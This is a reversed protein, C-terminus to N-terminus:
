SCPNELDIILVFALARPNQIGSGLEDHVLLSFQLPIQPLIGPSQIVDDIPFSRRANVSAGAKVRPERFPLNGNGDPLRVDTQLDKYKVPSIILESCSRLIRYMQTNAATIRNLVAPLASSFCFLFLTQEAGWGSLMQVLLLVQPEADVGHVTSTLRVAAEVADVALTESGLAFVGNQTM